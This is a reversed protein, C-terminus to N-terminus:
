ISNMIVSQKLIAINKNNHILAISISSNSNFILNKLLDVTYKKNNHIFAFNKMIDRFHTSLM